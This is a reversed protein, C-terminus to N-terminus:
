ATVSAQRARDMEAAFDRLAIFLPKMLARTESVWENFKKLEAPKGNLFDQKSKIAVQDVAIRELENCLTNMETIGDQTNKDVSIIKLIADGTRECFEGYVISNQDDGEDASRFLEHERKRDLEGIKASLATAAVRISTGKKKLDTDTYDMTLKAMKRVLDNVANFIHEGQKSSQAESTSASAATQNGRM